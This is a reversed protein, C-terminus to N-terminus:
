WFDGKPYGFLFRKGLFLVWTIACLVVATEPNFFLCTLCLALVTLQWDTKARHVYKKKDSM